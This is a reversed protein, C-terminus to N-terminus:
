KAAPNLLKDSVFFSVIYSTRQSRGGRPVPASRARHATFRPPADPIALLAQAVIRTGRSPPQRLCVSPTGRRLCISQESCVTSSCLVPDWIFAIVEPSRSSAHQSPMRNTLLFYPLISRTIHSAFADCLIEHLGLSGGHPVPASRARHSRLRARGTSSVALRLDSSYPLAQAVMVTGPDSCRPPADPIALLPLM